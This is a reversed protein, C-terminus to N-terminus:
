GRGFLKENYGDVYCEIANPMYDINLFMILQKNKNLWHSMICSLTVKFESHQGPQAQAQLLDPETGELAPILPTCYWVLGNTVNLFFVFFM